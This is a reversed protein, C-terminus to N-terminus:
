HVAVAVPLSAARETRWLELYPKLDQMLKAFEPLRLSQPGDSFAKEPNPHVEVMMGDAGVAVCAKALSPILSRKGTAHSPDLVIPLHTLEQLVPVASIDLTNRTATEFTRIGLELATEILSQAVSASPRGLHSGGLTLMSVQMGTRGLTRQPLLPGLADSSPPGANDAARALQRGAVLMGGAALALRHLAERRTTM